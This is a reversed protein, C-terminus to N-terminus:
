HLPLARKRRVSVIEALISVALEDPTEANIPVGIPAHLSDIKKQDFGDQALQERLLLTKRASGIFGAYRWRKKMVARVCELDTLHGRTVMVVYTAPDFPFADVIEAYPGCMTKVGTPFRGESSFEARDDGVTLAFGLRSAHWAVAQGVYGGGLILLKEAPLVPDLFVEEDELFVAEGSDLARSAADRIARPADAIRDEDLLSVSVEGDARLEKVFLVPQGRGLKEQAALYPGRDLVPEILLRSTGGCIMDQGEIKTGQFELTLLRSRRSAICEVALGRARAEGKGGGVTGAIIRDSRVAEGGPAIEDGFGVLMASGAHRPASGEVHVVTVLAIEGDSEAIAKVIGDNM